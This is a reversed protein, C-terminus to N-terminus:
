IFERVSPKWLPSWGLTALEGAAEGPNIFGGGGGGGGNGGLVGLAKGNLICFQLDYRVQDTFWNDWDDDTKPKAQFLLVFNYSRCSRFIAM